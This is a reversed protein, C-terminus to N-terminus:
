EGDRVCELAAAFARAAVSRGSGAPGTFLWAHTMAGPASDRGAHIERAARAATRLVEVAADQGVLDDWVTM